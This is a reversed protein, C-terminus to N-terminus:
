IFYKKNKLLFTRHMKYHKDSDIMSLVKKNILNTEVESFPRKLFNVIKLFKLKTWLFEIKFYYFFPRIYKRSFRILFPYKAYQAKNITNNKIFKDKQLKFKTSLWDFIFDERNLLDNYNILYFKISKNKLSNIYNQLDLSEFDYKYTEILYENELNLFNQITMSGDKLKQKFCSLIREIPNRVIVIAVGNNRKIFDYDKQEIIRHNFLFNYKKNNTKINRIKDFDFDKGGLINVNEQNSIQYYFWTTGTKPPGIFM